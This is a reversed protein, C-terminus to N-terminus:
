GMCRLRIVAWWFRHITGTTSEAGGSISEPLPSQQWSQGVRGPTVKAGRRESFRNDDSILMGATGNHDRASTALMAGLNGFVQWLLRSATATLIGPTRPTTHPRGRMATLAAQQNQRVADQIESADTIGAKRYHEETLMQISKQMAMQMGKSSPPASEEDKLQWDFSFHSLRQDRQQLVGLVSSPLEDAIVANCLCSLGLFAGVLHNKM